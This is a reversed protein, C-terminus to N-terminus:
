VNEPPRNSRADYKLVNVVIGLLVHILYYISRFGTITSRGTRRPHM